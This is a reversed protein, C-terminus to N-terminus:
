RKPPSSPRCRRCPPARRCEPAQDPTYRILLLRAPRVPRAPAPTRPPLWRVTQGCRQATPVRALDPRCPGLVAWSGAKLCLPLGLGLLDGDLTVPVVDDSLLGCGAADLAAALTSKGSGGPAVLLLGRGDPQVLGAGHLVLLREAPRCGLETLCHLTAVLAADPGQGTEQVAGNATLTWHRPTGHLLLQDGASGPSPDPDPGSRDPLLPALGARLAEDPISLSVARDAVALRWAGPPPATAPPPPLPPAAPAAAFRGDGPAADLLGAARWDAQLNDLYRRADAPALDFREALLGALPADAWGAVRLDWLAATAADLLWLRRAGPRALLRAHGLPTHLM